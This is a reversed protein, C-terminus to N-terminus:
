FSSWSSRKWTNPATCFYLFNSDAEIQGTQCTASSSGPTGTAPLMGNASASAPSLSVVRFNGSGDYELRLFEYNQGYLTLSSVSGRTGPSLIYGGSSGNVDVALSKGNDSVFDMYWGPTLATTSPLTVTLGGSTNFSSIIKGCDSLVASYTSTSPFSSQGYCATGSLGLSAATLPTIHTVRFNSGDYQLTVLEYNAAALSLSTVTAGSGPYLIHGGATGNVQVANTKSNDTAIGITWGMPLNTTSPLTVALFSSPSNFSSIVRGNDGLAAAYANSSPFLWQSIVDTGLIGLAAATAPTASLVRFNGGAASNDYAIVLFEYAGQTTVPMTVSTLSSGSGPYIIHGGSTGNVQVTVPQNNDTAFGMVWGSNPSLSTTEPLTVTLGSGTNYSSLVNGNDAVTAGYGGASPYLWNSPWPAADFGNALRTNRTTDVVRFNNGDFDVRAHEYNGPGMIMTSLSHSGALLRATDGETIQLTLGKGNDTAFEMSWGPNLTAAVPLTATMSSGPANYSSLALGDDIAAAVYTAASPFMWKARSGTGHVSIGTSVPGFNTVGGAYQPNILVNNDSATANVATTCNFYPSVFTNYGHHQNTISLCIPSAELDMAMITNSFSFGNELVLGVGGTATASGAGAIKSFQVQELAIGAAGGGSDCVAFIDSDFVANFQCAGAGAATAANNVLLHDIKFSNHQDSFDVKGLVFPYSPRTVQANISTGSPLGASPITITGSGVSSVTTAYTGGGTLAINIMAGAFFPTTSSVSLVTAGTSYASTLTALNTAGSNGLIDLTGRQRFYFCAIPSNPTGGGCQVQLVPGSTISRGDLIAGESIVTFGKSSLTAYDITLQSTVKYTGAPIHIPFGGAIASTITNQIATTSDVADAPDAGNCLVDIWPRGSCMLTDGSTPFSNNLAFAPLPAAVLVFLILALRRIM